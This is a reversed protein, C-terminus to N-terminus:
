ILIEWLEDRELEELRKSKLQEPVSFQTNWKKSLMKEIKWLTKRSYPAYLNLFNELSDYPVKEPTPKKIFRILCSKVKPAPSFCKPPVIKMYEVTYARNVLRWLYSKKKASSIIKEWVENQIMFFWWLLNAEKKRFLHKFIPSTIYYPLNWVVIAEKEQITKGWLLKAIDQELVDWFIIQNKKLWINELHEKMTEDKEIVFFCPSIQYIKKTIAWKGPWIEILAKSKTKEYLNAISSAIYKIIQSDKLFNQWLYTSM